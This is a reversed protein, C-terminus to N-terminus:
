SILWKGLGEVISSPVFKENNSTPSLLSLYYKRNTLIRLANEHNNKFIIGFIETARKEQNENEFLSFYEENKITKRSIQKQKNPDPAIGSFYKKNPDTDPVNKVETEEITYKEEESIYSFYETNNDIFPKELTVLKIFLKPYYLKIICLLLYDVSDVKPKLSNFGNQFINGLNILQRPTKVLYDIINFLISYGEDQNIITNTNDKNDTEKHRQWCTGKIENKIEANWLYKDFFNEKNTKDIEWLPQYTPVNIMKRIYERGHGGCNHDITASLTEEDYGIVFNIGFETVLRIVKLMTLAEDTQLRDLDDIIVVIRKRKDHVEEDDDDLYTFDSTKLRQCIKRKLDSFDQVSGDDGSMWSILNRGYNIVKFANGVVPLSEPLSPSSSMVVALKLFLKALERDEDMLEKALRYFFAKIVTEQSGFFWPDFWIVKVEQTIVESISALDKNGSIHKFYKNLYELRERKGVKQSESIWISKISAELEDKEKEFNQYELLEKVMNLLSTKGSGWSGSVGVSLHDKSDKGGVLKAIVSAQFSFGFLDNTISDIPEDNRVDAEAM